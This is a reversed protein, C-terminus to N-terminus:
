PPSPHVRSWADFRALPRAPAAADVPARRVWDAGAYVAAIVRPSPNPISMLYELIEASEAVALASSEDSRADLPALTLPDHRPSWATAVGAVRVQADLICEIGRAAASAARQRTHDTVAPYRGAAVSDLLRLVNVMANGDFTVADDYSGALPYRQPYCGNPYQADLLYDVGRAIARDYRPNAHAQGALNLFRVEETTESNDSTSVWQRERSESDYREGPQRTHLTVDVHKSWGGNPAQFSVMVDAMRRATDTAFWAPTMSPKVSFDQGYPASVMDRNHAQRLERHMVATDHAYEASSRGIYAFWARQTAPPLKELRQLSLLTVTDHAPPRDPLDRLSDTPNPNGRQAGAASALVLAVLSVRLVM